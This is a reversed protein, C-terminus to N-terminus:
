RKAKDHEFRPKLIIQSPHIARISQYKGWKRPWGRIEVLQRQYNRLEPFYAQHATSIWIYTQGDLWLKNGKKTSELKTVRADYRGWKQRKDKAIVAIDQTQYARMRWLGLREKEARQQALILAESYKLNPPHLSLVALGRRLLVLNVHVGNDMFVHALTRGYKDTQDSDLELVVHQKLLLRNLYEKAQLAGADSPKGHYGVEPTNIALLRVTQKNSLVITDGDIIRIVRTSENAYSTSYNTLVFLAGFFLRYSLQRKICDILM